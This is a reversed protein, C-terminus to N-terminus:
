GKHYRQEHVIHQDSRCLLLQLGVSLRVKGDQIGTLEGGVLVGGPHGALRTDGEVEVGALHDDQSGLIRPLHLLADEGDHMVQHGLLADEGEM